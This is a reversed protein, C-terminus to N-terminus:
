VPTRQCRIRLCGDGLSMYSMLSLLGEDDIMRELIWVRWICRGIAKTPGEYKEPSTHRSQTRWRGALPKGRAGGWRRGKGAEGTGRGRM